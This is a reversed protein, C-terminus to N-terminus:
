GPDTDEWSEAERAAQSQTVPHFLVVNSASHKSGEGTEKWGRSADSLLDLAASPNKGGRGLVQEAGQQSLPAPGTECGQGWGGVLIRWWTRQTQSFHYQKRNMIIICCTM